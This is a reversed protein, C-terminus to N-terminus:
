SVRELCASPISLSTLAAPVASSATRRIIASLISSSTAVCTLSDLVEFDVLDGDPVASLVALALRCGRVKNRTHEFGKGREVVQVGHRAQFHGFYDSGFLDVGFVLFLNM